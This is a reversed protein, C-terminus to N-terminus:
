SREANGKSRGPPYNEANIRMKNRIASLLDIGVRDCFLLLAIGIDAVEHEIASLKAVDTHLENSEEATLWRLESLLEGAESGIAMALNKPSHFQSWDRDAVFGRLESILDALQINKSM